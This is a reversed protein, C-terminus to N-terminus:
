HPPYIVLKKIDSKIEKEKGSYDSEMNMTATITYLYVNPSLQHGLQDHLNWQQGNEAHRFIKLLKGSLSYIRITADINENEGEIMRNHDFYFRTSKGSVAPNPFNYVNSLTFEEDDTIKLYIEKRSINGNIDMAGVILRYNGPKVGSSDMYYQATGATGNSEPDLSFGSGLSVQSLVGEVELTLGEGPASGTVQLGSQDWLDIAIKMPLSATITDGVGVPVNWKDIANEDADVRLPRIKISPGLTDSDNGIKSGSFIFDDKIFTACKSGNKNFAYVRLIPKEKGFPVRKPMAIDASFIGNVINVTTDPRLYDGPLSYMINNNEGGDKRKVSDRTPFYFSIQAYGPNTESIGFATNVIDGTSDFVGVKGSVNITELAQVTDSKESNLSVKLSDTITNLRISPDGILAYYQINNGVVDDINSNDVNTGVKNKSMAYAQGISYNLEKDYLAWFFGKAMATNAGAYATRTSAIFGIAGSKVQNVMDGALSTQSPIDFRGVRCSFATILPYKGANTLSSVTNKNLINEDAWAEWSGHGFYNVCGVGQNIESFLANAADPKSNDAGKWPYEFLYVKRLSIGPRQVESYFAVDESSKYHTIGDIGHPTRDDDAVLLLRNRWDKFTYEKEGAEMEIIKEVASTAESQSLAVIRGLFIDPYTTTSGVIDGYDLYTYFDEMCDQNYQCTPIHVKENSSKYNKYDYNGSGFLLVYDPASTWGGNHTYSLFNRIASYDPTGGSFERYIDKVNVVLPNNFLGASIKHNVLQQAQTLFDESSIVLYDCNISPDRLFKKQSSSSNTQKYHVEYDVPLSLFDSENAIVYQYGLGTSDSWFNYLASGSNDVITDILDIDKDNDSLRFIYTKGNQLYNLAYTKVGKLTDSFVRISNQKDLSLSSNYYLDIYDLEYFSSNTSTNSTLAVDFVSRNGLSSDPWMIFSGRGDKDLDISINGLKLSLTDSSDHGKGLIVYGSDSTQIESYNLDADFTFFRKSETLRDWVWNIGGEIEATASNGSLYKTVGRYRTRKLYSYNTDTSVGGSYSYKEINKSGGSAKIWYTRKDALRNLNYDYRYEISDIVASGDGNLVKITDSYSYWDCLGSVYLLLYDGTDFITNNNADVRLLPIEEVGLPIDAAEPVKLNLEERNSAFVSIDAIPKNYGLVSIVESASIKMIGNEKTTTENIGSVGDGVKFSIMTETPSVPSYARKLRTSMKRFSQATNYNLVMEDIVKEYDGSKVSRSLRRTGIPSPLAITVKLKKLLTLSKTNENYSFPTIQFRLTRLDRYTIYEGSTAWQGNHILSLSGDSSKVLPAELKVVKTELPEIYVKAEGKQAVGVTFSKYPIRYGKKDPAYNDSGSFDIYTKQGEATEIKDIKYDDVEYEFVLTKPDDKIVKVDGFLTIAFSALLIFTLRYIPMLCEEVFVSLSM